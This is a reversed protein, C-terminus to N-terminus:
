SHPRPGPPSPPRRQEIAPEDLLPRVMELVARAYAPTRLPEPVTLAAYEQRVAVQEPEGSVPSGIRLYAVLDTVAGLAGGTDLAADAGTLFEPQPVRRGLEVAAVQSASYGIKEGLEQRELKTRRRLAKVQRGLRRLVEDGPVEGSVAPPTPATM